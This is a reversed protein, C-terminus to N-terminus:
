YDEVPEAIGGPAVAIGYREGTSRVEVFPQLLIGVCQDLARAVSDAQRVALHAIAFNAMKVDAGAANDPHIYRSYIGSDLVAAEKAVSREEICHFGCPGGFRRKM